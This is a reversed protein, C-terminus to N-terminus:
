VKLLNLHASCMLSTESKRCDTLVSLVLGNIENDDFKHLQEEFESPMPVGM